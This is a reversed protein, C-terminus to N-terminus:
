VPGAVGNGSDDPGLAEDSMSTPRAGAGGTTAGGPNSGQEDSGQQREGVTRSV